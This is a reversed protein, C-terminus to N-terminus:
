GHRAAQEVEYCSCCCRALKKALKLKSPPIIYEDHKKIKGKNHMDELVERVLIKRSLLSDPINNKMGTLYRLISMKFSQIFM